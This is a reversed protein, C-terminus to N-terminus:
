FCIISSRFSQKIIEKFL